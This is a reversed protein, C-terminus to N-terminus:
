PRKWAFEYIDGSLLANPRKPLGGYFTFVFKPVFIKPAMGTLPPSKPCSWICLGPAPRNEIYFTYFSGINLLLMGDSPFAFLM